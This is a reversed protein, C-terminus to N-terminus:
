RIWRCTFMLDNFFYISNGQYVFDLCLRVQCDFSHLNRVFGLINKHSKLQYVLICIHSSLEMIASINWGKALISSDSEDFSGDKVNRFICFSFTVLTCCVLVVNSCKFKFNGKTAAGEFSLPFYGIMKAFLLLPRTASYINDM